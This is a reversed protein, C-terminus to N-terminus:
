IGSTGRKILAYFSFKFKQLLMYWKRLELTRSTM